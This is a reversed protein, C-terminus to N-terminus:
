AVGGGKHSDFGCGLSQLDLARGSLWQAVKHHKPVYWTVIKNEHSTIHFDLPPSAPNFHGGLLRLTCQAVASKSSACHDSPITAAPHNNVRSYYNVHCTIHITSSDLSPQSICPSWRLTQVTAVLGGAQEVQCRHYVSYEHHLRNNIWQPSNSISQSTNSRRITLHHIM